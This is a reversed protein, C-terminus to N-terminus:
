QFYSFNRRYIPKLLAKLSGSVEGADACDVVYLTEMGTSRHENCFSKHSLKPSYKDVALKHGAENKFLIIGGPPTCDGPLPHAEVNDQHKPFFM